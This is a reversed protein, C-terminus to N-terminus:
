GVENRLLEIGMQALELERALQKQAYHLRSRVTGENIALIQAVEKLPLDHLYRLVIPLRHKDRLRNVAAWLAADAENQITVVEPSPTREALPRWVALLSQMRQRAKQKRLQGRCINVCITLLWARFNSGVTYQERKGAATLVTEQAADDAEAADHVITQALHVLQEYYHHVVLEVFRADDVRGRALLQDIESLQESM